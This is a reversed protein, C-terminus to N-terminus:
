LQKDYIKAAIFKAAACVVCLGSTLFMYFTDGRIVSAITIAILSFIAAFALVNQAKSAILLGLEDSAAFDRVTARKEGVIRAWIMIAAAIVTLSTGLGSIFGAIRSLTHADESVLWAMMVGSFVLVLGIILMLPMHKRELVCKM